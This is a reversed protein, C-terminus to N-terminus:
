RAVGSASFTAQNDAMQDMIGQGQAQGLHGATANQHKGSMVFAEMALVLSQRM